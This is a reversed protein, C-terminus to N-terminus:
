YILPSLHGGTAQNAHDLARFIELDFNRQTATQYGFPFTPDAHHGLTVQKPDLYNQWRYHSVYDLLRRDGYGHQGYQNYGQGGYHGYGNNYYPQHGYHNYGYGGGYPQQQGYHVGPLRGPGLKYSLVNSAIGSMSFGNM